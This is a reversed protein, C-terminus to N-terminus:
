RAAEGAPMVFGEAVGALDTIARASRVADHLAAEGRAVAFALDNHNGGRGTALAM